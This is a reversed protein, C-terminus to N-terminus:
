LPVPPVVPERAFILMSLTVTVAVADAGEEWPDTVENLLTPAFEKVILKADPFPELRTTFNFVDFLKM